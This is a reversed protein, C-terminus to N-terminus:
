AAADGANLREAVIRDAVRHPGTGARAASDLIHAMMRELASLRETVFHMRDPVRLIEAAVNVIGGGNAVYDPAYLIGRRHLIDGAADSALQNNAAGCVIRAPIVSAVEETIVGGIACPALIDARATLIADHAVVEAGFTAAAQASRAPDIDSVLLEAGAARALKALHWGVHGLGQIAVTRGALDRSGFRREAAVRMAYFVGRATRPSPDGSAYPGDPLGAVFRTERRVVQMDAPSMGMDEATWYRGGLTEVARGMAHLKAETKEAPNGLIVAKGGGLPLDAAATKLTMGRSLALVDALAADESEYAESEYARMRLGGAAPGRATSHIAIFGTLGAEADTVRLVTDHTPITLTEIQM